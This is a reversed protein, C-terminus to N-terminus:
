LCVPLEVTISTGGIPSPQGSSIRVMGHEKVIRYVIAMGIGTGEGFFSKFPHFLRAKEEETM